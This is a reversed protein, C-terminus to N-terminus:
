ERFEGCSAGEEGFRELEKALDALRRRREEVVKHLLPDRELVSGLHTKNSALAHM